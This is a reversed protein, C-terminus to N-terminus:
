SHLVWTPRAILSAGKLKGTPDHIFAADRKIGAWVALTMGTLAAAGLRDDLSVRDKLDEM